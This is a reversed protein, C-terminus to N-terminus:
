PMGSSCYGPFSYMETIAEFPTFFSGNDLLVPVNEGEEPERFAYYCQNQELIERAAGGPIERARGRAAEGGPSRRRVERAGSTRVALRTGPVRSSKRLPVAGAATSNEATPSEAPVADSKRTRRPSSRM